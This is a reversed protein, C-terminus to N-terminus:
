LMKVSKNNSVLTGVVVNAQFLLVYMTKQCLHLLVYM